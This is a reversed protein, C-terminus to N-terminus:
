HPAETCVPEVLQGHCRIGPVFSCCDGKRGFPCGQDRQMPTNSPCWWVEHLCEKPLPLQCCRTWVEWVDWLVWCAGVCGGNHCPPEKPVCFLKMHARKASLLEFGQADPHAEKLFDEVSEANLPLNNTSVINWVLGKRHLVDIYEKKDQFWPLTRLVVQGFGIAGKCFLSVMQESTGEKLQVLFLHDSLGLKKVQSFASEIM